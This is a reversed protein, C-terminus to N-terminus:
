RVGFAAESAQRWGEAFGFLGAIIQSGQQTRAYPLFEPETEFWKVLQAKAEDRENSNTMSSVFAQGYEAVIENPAKV